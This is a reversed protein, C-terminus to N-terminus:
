HRMLKQIQSGEFKNSYENSKEKLERKLSFSCYRHRLFVYNTRQFYFASFCILGVWTLDSVDSNNFHYFEDPDDFDDFEDFGDFEDLPWGFVINVM